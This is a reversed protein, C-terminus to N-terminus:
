RLRIGMVEVTREGLPVFITGVKVKNEFVINVSGVRSGEALGNWVEITRSTNATLGIEKTFAIGGTSVIKLTMKVDQNTTNALDLEIVDFTKPLSTFQIQPIFYDDNANSNITFAYGTDKQTMTSGDSVTVGFDNAQMDVARETPKEYLAITEVTVGNKVLEVDELLGNTADMTYSYKYGNGCAVRDLVTTGVKVQYEPSTYFAYTASKGEYQMDYIFKDNGKTARLVADKLAERCEDFIEDDSFATSRCFIKDYVGKLINNVDFTGEEVGYYTEHERYLSELYNLTDMDEQGDRYTLLRLSKIPESAGYRAAPYVFFGDGMAGIVGNMYRNIEDYPNIAAYNSGWGEIQMYTNYSWYLWGYLNYYKQVWKLIRGSVLFDDIHNTPAPAAPDIQTYYWLDNNYKDAHQEINTQISYDEVEHLQPVYVIDYGELGPEDGEATCVIDIDRVSAVIPSDADLVGDSVLRDAVDNRLKTLDEMWVKAIQLNADDNPEDIPYIYCEEFYNKGTEAAEQGLLYLCDFWYDMCGYYRARKTAGDAGNFYGAGDSYGTNYIPTTPLFTQHPLGYTNFNPDDYYKLVNEVFKAPSKTSEPVMYPNMKYKLAQEYYIRYWDDVEEQVSTLEGQVIQNEYILICSASTSKAPITYDWVTVSVPIDLIEDDVVLNFTGTYVGAPTDATTTFDVTFGQNSHKDVNNEGAEKILEMDVIADPAHCGVPFEELFNGRSKATVEIYKQVMVEMQEVSFVDGNENILEQPILEFKKIRLNDTTIYLSGMESEGKAMKVNIGKDMKVYRENFQVDQLVKTTAYTTWVEYVPKSEGADPKDCGVVGMSFMLVLSLAVGRKFIKKLM